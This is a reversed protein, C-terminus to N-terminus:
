QKTFDVSLAAPTTTITATIRRDGYLPHKLIFSRTGLMVPLNAMPTEGAKRGDIWVEAWPHANINVRGMPEVNLPREEGPHIEVTRTETFGFERNSLTLVHRGPPLMIKGTETSGVSRGGAAVELTIPAFVSVWGSYVPVDLTVLKGAEVRVTRRVSATETAIVLAHRGPSVADLKLPTVGVDAGDMTVKAGSPQSDIVLSGAKEVLAAPPPTAAAADGAAASASATEPAPQLYSRGAVIAVAIVLVVAAALKWPFGAPEAAARDLFPLARPSDDFATRAPAYGSPPEARVRVSAPAAVPPAAPPAPAPPPAHLKAQIPALGIAPAPTFSVPPPTPTFKPLPPAVPAPTFSPPPTVAVPTFAVPPPVPSVSPRAPPDATVPPAPPAATLAAPPPMAATTAVVPLNVSPAPVVRPQASVAERSTFGVAPTVPAPPVVPAAETVPEPASVPKPVPAPTPAVRAVAPAEPTDPVVPTSEVLRLVPPEPRPATRAVIPVAAPRAAAVPMRAAPEFRVLDALAAHSAEAGIVTALQRIEAAAEDTGVMPRRGLLPLASGLFRQVGDAFERGARIEALEAVEQVLPVLVAPDGPGEILRGLALVLACMVAQVVDGQRDFRAAGASPPAMLWLTSWLAHRHLKLRELAPAYIGDLLVIQSSPTVIIRGPALTGHVISAAHLTSLAPLTQLLFGFAADIGFGAAADRQRTEIVDSLRQGAVLESVVVVGQGDRAITRIRVFREDDLATFAGARERLSAEFAGLEPRLHLCELMGGVERDFRVSRRGLGDEYGATSISVNRAESLGSM